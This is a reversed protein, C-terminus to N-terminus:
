ETVNGIVLGDLDAWKGIGFPNAGPNLGDLDAWKGIGFPDSSHTWNSSNNHMGHGFAIMLGNMWPGFEQGNHCVNESPEECNEAHVGSFCIVLLSLAVV